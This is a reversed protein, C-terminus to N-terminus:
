LNTLRKKQSLECGNMAFEHHVHSRKRESFSMNALFSSNSRLFDSFLVLLSLMLIMPCGALKRTVNSMEIVKVTTAIAARRPTAMRMM